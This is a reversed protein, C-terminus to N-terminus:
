WKLLRKEIKLKQNTMRDVLQVCEKFEPTKRYAVLYIVNPIICCLIARVILTIWPSFDVFCCVFGCLACSIIIIAVYAGLHKLYDKMQSKEFLVTFLNNLLWPMGVLLMSLVTSLIIGYIGIFQVMILNLGVNACATVLPRFRDEHWIGAADKYTNLLQNIEFIIYYAVLCVVASIGLM